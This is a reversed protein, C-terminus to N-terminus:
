KTVERTVPNRSLYDRVVKAQNSDIYESPNFNRAFPLLRPSRSGNRIGFCSVEGLRQVWLDEGDLSDVYRDIAAAQQEDYEFGVTTPQIGVLKKWHHRVLATAVEFEGHRVAAAFIDAYILDLVPPGFTSLIRRVNETEGMELNISILHWLWYRDRNNPTKPLYARITPRKELYDHFAAALIDGGEDYDQRSRISLIDRVLTERIPYTRGWIDAVTQLARGITKPGVPKNSRYKLTDLVVIRSNLDNERRSELLSAFRNDMETTWNGTDYHVLFALELADSIVPFKTRTDEQEIWERYFALVNKNQQSSGAILAKRMAPVLFRNDHESLNIRAQLDEAARNLATFTEERNEPSIIFPNLFPYGDFDRVPGVRDSSFIGILFPLEDPDNLRDLILKLHNYTFTTLEPKLRGTIVASEGATSLQEFASVAGKWDVPIMRAIRYAQRAFQAEVPDSPLRPIDIPAGEEVRSGGATSDKLADPRPPSTGTIPTAPTNGRGVDPLCLPEFTISRVRRQDHPAVLIGIPKGTSVQFVPSGRAARLDADTDLLMTLKRPGDRVTFTGNILNEGSLKGFTGSDVAMDPGRQIWLPEGEELQYAPDFALYPLRIGPDALPIVQVDGQRFARSGLLPIPRATNGELILSPIRAGAFQNRTMCAVLRNNYEIVFVSESYNEWSPNVYHRPHTPPEEGRSSVCPSSVLFLFTYLFFTQATEM